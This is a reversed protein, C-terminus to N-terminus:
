KMLSKMRKKLKEELDKISKYFRHQMNMSKIYADSTNFNIDSILNLFAISM